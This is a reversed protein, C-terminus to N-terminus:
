IPTGNAALNFLAYRKSSIAYCYLPEPQGTELIGDVDEVKLISGGFEYPNLAAFWDVLETTQRQFLANTMNDPKAM